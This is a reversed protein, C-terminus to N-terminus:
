RRETRIPGDWKLVCGVTLVGRGLERPPRHRLSRFTDRDDDLVGVHGIRVVRDRRERV